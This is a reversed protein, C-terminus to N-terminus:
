SHKGGIAGELLADLRDADAPPLTLAIRLARSEHKLRTLAGDEDGKPLRVFDKETTVLLADHTAALSLLDTAQSATLPEHDRFLASARVDAGCATLLNLFRSPNAIGAYAVVRAGALWATEEAPATSAQLVPGPFKARLWDLVRSTEDSASALPRAGMNVVVADTHAFQVDIPARLPGAPIVRANGLGRQGDVIALTLDKALHPNQLGDDMVIVTGDPRTDLQRAGAVRDRAVCVPATRALLLPEDGTDRATDHELDVFHPGRERGGYGRSLIVPLRGMALLREALYRATPTKGTGGATFNGVCIVPHRARYQAPRGMRRAAAWAYVHALPALVRPTVEDSTDYWWRPEELPM